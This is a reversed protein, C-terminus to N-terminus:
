FLLGQVLGLADTQDSIRGACDVLHGAPTQLVAESRHRGDHLPGRIVVRDQPGVSVPQDIIKDGKEGRLYPRAKKRM